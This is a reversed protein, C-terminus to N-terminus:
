YFNDFELPKISPLSKLVHILTDIYIQEKETRTEESSMSILMAYLRDSLEQISDLEIPNMRKTKM